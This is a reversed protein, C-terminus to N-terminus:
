MKKRKQIQHIKQTDETEWFEPYGVNQPNKKMREDTKKKMFAHKRGQQHSTSPKSNDASDFDVGIFASNMDPLLAQNQSPIMKYVKLFNMSDPNQHERPHNKKFESPLTDQTSFNQFNSQSQSNQSTFHPQARYHKGTKEVNNNQNQSLISAFNIPQSAVTEIYKGCDAWTIEGSIINVVFNQTEGDKNNLGYCFAEARTNSDEKVGEPDMIYKELYDKVRFSKQSFEGTSEVDVKTLIKLQVAYAPWPKGDKDKSFLFLDTHPNESDNDEDYKKQLKPRPMTLYRLAAIFFVVCVHEQKLYRNITANVWLQKQEWFGTLTEKYEDWPFDNGIEARVFFDEHGKLIYYLFKKVVTALCERYETKENMKLPFSEEVLSILEKYTPKPNFISAERNM